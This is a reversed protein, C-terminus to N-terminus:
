NNARRKFFLIVLINICIFVISSFVTTADNATVLFYGGAIIFTFNVLMKNSTETEFFNAKTFFFWIASGILVSYFYGILILVLARDKGDIKYRILLFVYILLVCFSPFLVRTVFNDKVRKM